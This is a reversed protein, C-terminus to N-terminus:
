ELASMSLFVRAGTDSKSQALLDYFPVAPTNPHFRFWARSRFEAKRNGNSQVGRRRRRRIRDSSLTFSTNVRMSMKGQSIVSNAIHEDCGASLRSAGATNYAM